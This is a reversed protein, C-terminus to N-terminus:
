QLALSACSLPSFTGFGRSYQYPQLHGSRAYDAKSSSRGQVRIRFTLNGMRRRGSAMRDWTRSRRAGTSGIGVLCIHRMQSMPHLTSTAAVSASCSARGRRGERGRSRRIRGGRRCHSVECTPIGGGATTPPVSLRNARPTNCASVIRRLGRDRRHLWAMRGLELKTAHQLM